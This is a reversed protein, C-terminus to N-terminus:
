RKGLKRLFYIAGGVGVVVAVITVARSGPTFVHPVRFLNATLVGAVVLFLAVRIGYVIPNPRRRFSDSWLIWLMVTLAAIAMGGPSMM